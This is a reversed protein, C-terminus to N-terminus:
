YIVAWYSGMNLYWELICTLKQASPLLASYCFAVDCANPRCGLILCALNLIWSFKCFFLPLWKFGLCKGIELTKVQLFNIRFINLPHVFNKSTTRNFFLLHAWVNTFSITLVRERFSLTSTWLLGDWRLCLAFLAYFYCFSFDFMCIVCFRNEADFDLVHATTIWSQLQLCYERLSKTCTLFTSDVCNYKLYLTTVLRKVRVKVRHVVLLVAGYFQLNLICYVKTPTKQM